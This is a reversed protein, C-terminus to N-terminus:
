GFWRGGTAALPVHGGQRPADPHPVRQDQPIRLVAPRALACNDSSVSPYEYAPSFTHPLGRSLPSRRQLDPRVHVCRSGNTGPCAESAWQSVSLNLRHNLHIPLAVAYQYEGGKFPRYPIPKIDLINGEFPKISPFDFAIPEWEIRLIHAQLITVIRPNM